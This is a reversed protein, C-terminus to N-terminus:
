AHTNGRRLFSKKISEINTYIGRHVGNITMNTFSCRPARMGFKEFVHLQMCTIVGTLDQNNNNFTMGDTENSSQVIGGDCLDKDCTVSASGNYYLDNNQPFQDDFKQIDIKMSPFEQSKLVSGVFGKRRVGVNTFPVGSITM